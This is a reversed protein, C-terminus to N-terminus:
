HRNWTTGGAAAHMITEPTAEDRTWEGTIEGDAMVLIRDAVTFLEGIDSTFYLVGKGKDALARIFRLVDQKAGLDIGKTPEDFMYVDADTELWKGIAVKQQNGGSLFRIDHHPSPARVSLREILRLAYSTEEQRRIWGFSSLSGLRPLSLNETVSFGFLVGEKRREEPVLCIGARIAQEPTRVSVTKGRIWWTGSGPDAGFLARATESKGGGVLGAIGLVEGEHLTFSVSKGTAPVFFSDVRALPTDRRKTDTRAPPVFTKGLMHQVIDDDTFDKLHGTIVSRGNRLVTFRDALSRIEGLRHSILIIGVGRKALGRIVETLRRTERESLPATPEDLILFKVSGALSRAILILQKEALTCRSVPQDPDLEAGVEGLLQVAKERLTTARIWSPGATIEELMVNETVTMSPVLAADVEQVVLRIGERRAAKPSPLHIERDGLLISGGDKSLNGALIHMLTSKGAGNAGVLAHVEGPHVTISVDKLVEHGDFSKQIGKMELRETM